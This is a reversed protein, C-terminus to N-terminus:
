GLYPMPDVPNGNIRVEFHLHPGTCYGSCGVNAIPVGRGVSQGDVVAFASLHGYLTAIGGGHDIVVANGYGSMVGAFIVTGSDAAVVTAGYPAGIDIGTHLRTDGFIPHTRYGYGSTVPGAAPWLLQGGGSPLIGASSSGQGQLLATVSAADAELQEIVRELDRKKSLVGSLIQEKARLATKRAELVSAREQRVQTVAARDTELGLKKTSIEQRKEEVLKRKLETEDRLVQIEQVLASDSDLAAEYYSVRNGLEVFTNSSVLGEVYATPGAIYAAVARQTFADLRGDLRGLIGQLEESLFALRIQADALEKRVTLIRESLKDIKADLADVEAQARAAREDLLRVEDSLEGSRASLADVQRQAEEKKRQIEDLRDSPDALAPVVSLIMLAALLLPILGVRRRGSALNM